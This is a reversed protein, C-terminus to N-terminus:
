VCMLALRLAASVTKARITARDGSFNYRRVLVGEATAAAIYVTGVPKKPTGGDPGAIGTVSVSIDAKFLARAGKAMAAATAPSVAGVTDLTKEPVDVLATKIRNAYTCVGGDFVASAGAVETIAGSILGGTCSEATCIKLSKKKLAEVLAEAEKIM